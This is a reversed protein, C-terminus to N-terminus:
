ENNKEKIIIKQKDADCILIFNKSLIELDKLTLNKYSLTM